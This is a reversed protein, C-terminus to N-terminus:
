RGMSEPHNRISMEKLYVGECASTTTKLDIEDAGLLGWAALHYVWML